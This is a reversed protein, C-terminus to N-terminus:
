WSTAASTRWCFALVILGAKSRTSAQYAKYRDVVM